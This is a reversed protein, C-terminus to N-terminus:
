GNAVKIIGEAYKRDLEQTVVTLQDFPVISIHAPANRNRWIAWANHVDELTTDAGKVFYLLTYLDTLEPSLGPLEKEVDRVAAQIYTM